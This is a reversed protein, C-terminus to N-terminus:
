IWCRNKKRIYQNAEIKMSPSLINTLKLRRPHRRSFEDIIAPVDVSIDRHIHMLALGTFRLQSQTDLPGTTAAEPTSTSSASSFYHHLDIM